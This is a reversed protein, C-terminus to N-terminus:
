WWWVVMAATAVVLIGAWLTRDQWLPKEWQTFIEKAEDAQWVLDGLNEKEKPSTAYSIGVHLIIGITMMISSMMSVTCTNGVKLSPM